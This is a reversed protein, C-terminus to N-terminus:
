RLVFSWSQAPLGDKVPNGEVYAIAREVDAEDFLFVKWGKGAWVSPFRGEVDKLQALPHLDEEVLAQTARAKLHAIIKEAPREHRQVVM